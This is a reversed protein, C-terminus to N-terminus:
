ETRIDRVSGEKLILAEWNDGPVTVVRSQHRALGLGKGTTGAQLTSGEDLTVTMTGVSFERADVRAQHRLGTTLYESTGQLIVHSLWSSDVTLMKGSFVLTVVSEEGTKLSAGLGDPWLVRGSSRGLVILEGLTPLEIVAKVVGRERPGRLGTEIAVTAAGWWNSVTLQDFLARTTEVTVRAQAGPIVEFDVEGRIELTRVKALNWTKTLKEQPDETFGMAGLGGTCALTLALCLLPKM